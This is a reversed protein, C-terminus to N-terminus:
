GAVALLVVGWCLEERGAVPNWSTGVLERDEILSDEICVEDGDDLKEDNGWCFGETTEVSNGATEDPLSEDKGCGLRDADDLEKDEAAPDVIDWLEETTGDLEIDKVLLGVVCLEENRPPDGIDWGLGDTGEVLKCPVGDFEKGEAAPDVMDWCLEEVTGVVNCPAEDLKDEALLEEICVGAEDAPVEDAVCGIGEVVNVSRCLIVDLERDEILEDEM